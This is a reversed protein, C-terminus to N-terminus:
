VTEPFPASSQTLPARLPMPALHQYRWGSTSLRKMPSRRDVFRQLPCSRWKRIRGAYRSRASPHLRRGRITQSRMGDQHGVMPSVVLVTRKLDGTRLSQSFASPRVSIQDNDVFRVNLHSNPHIVHLGRPCVHDAQRSRREGIPKPPNKWDPKASRAHVLQGFRANQHRHANKRCARQYARLQVAPPSHVSAAAASRPM